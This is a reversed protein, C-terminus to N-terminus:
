EKFSGATLGEVIYRQCLLYLAIIPLIAILIAATLQTCRTGFPGQFSLLGM